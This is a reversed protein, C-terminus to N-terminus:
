PHLDLYHRLQRVTEGADDQSEIEAGAALLQQVCDDDDDYHAAAHHLAQAGAETTAMLDRDV